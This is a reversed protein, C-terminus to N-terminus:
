RREKGMRDIESKVERLSDSIEAVLKYLSARIEALVFKGKCEGTAQGDKYGREYDETIVLRGLEMLEEENRGPVIGTSKELVTRRVTM